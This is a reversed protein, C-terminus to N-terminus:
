RRGRMTGRIGKNKICGAKGDWWKDRLIGIWPYRRWDARLSTLGINNTTSKPTERKVPGHCWGNAGARGWNINWQTSKDKSCLSPLFRQNKQRILHGLSELVVRSFEVKVYWSALKGKRGSRLAESAGSWNLLPGSINFVNIKVNFKDSRSNLHSKIIM